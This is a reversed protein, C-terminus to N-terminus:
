DVLVLLGPGHSQWHSRPVHSYTVHWLCSRSMHCQWCATVTAVYGVTTSAVYGVTPRSGALSDLNSGVPM